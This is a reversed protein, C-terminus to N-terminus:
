EKSKNLITDKFMFIKNEKYKGLYILYCKRASLVMCSEYFWETVRNLDNLLVEKVEELKYGSASLPNVDTYNSLKSSSVFQFLDNLFIDFLFTGLIFDQLVGAITEQWASFNRNVRVRQKRNDLYSKVYNLAETHFGYLGLKATLINHNLIDFVKSLDM